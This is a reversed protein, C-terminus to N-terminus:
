VDEMLDFNELGAIVGTRVADDTPMKINSCFRKLMDIADALTDKEADILANIIEDENHFEDEWITYKQVDRFIFKWGYSIKKIVVSRGDVFKYIKDTEFM